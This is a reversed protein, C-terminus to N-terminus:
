GSAHKAVALAVAGALPSDGGLEARVVDPPFPLTERVVHAIRDRLEPTNEAIGGGLVLAEPDVIACLAVAAQALYDGARGVIAVADGDGARAAEFVDSASAPEGAVGRKAAWERAIGVGAATLELCGNEGWDRGIHAPEPLLYAIEGAAHHHGRLIKGGVVIGASVGTSVTMYVLSQRGRGAGYELEGLAAAKVDNEIAAKVALRSELMAVLPVRSWGPLNAATRVVGAEPDTIGPATCGVSVLSERKRGAEALCRDIEASVLDLFPDPAESTPTRVSRRAIIRRPDDLGAVACRLNTGGIDVAAVLREEAVVSEKRVAWM